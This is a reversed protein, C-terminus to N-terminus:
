EGEEGRVEWRRLKKGELRKLDDVSDEHAILSGMGKGRRQCGVNAILVERCSIHRYCIFGFEECKKARNVSLFWSPEIVETQNNVKEGDAWWYGRVKGV